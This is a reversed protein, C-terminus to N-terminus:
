LNPWSVKHVLRYLKSKLPAKLRSHFTRGLPLLNAAIGTTAMELAVCGDNELYRVIAKLLYTKGCGGRADIFASFAQKQKVAELVTTFIKSQESTLSPIINDLTTELEQRDYNKEERIVVSDISTPHEVNALKDKTPKPLGFDTM